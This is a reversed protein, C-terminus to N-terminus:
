FPKPVRGPIPGLNGELLSSVGKGFGIIPVGKKFTRGLLGGIFDM